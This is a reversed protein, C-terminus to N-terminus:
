TSVVEKTFSSTDCAEAKSVYRGLPADPIVLAMSREPDPEGICLVRREVIGETKYGKLKAWVECIQPLIEGFKFAWDGEWRACAVDMLDACESLFEGPETATTMIATSGNNGSDYFKVVPERETM